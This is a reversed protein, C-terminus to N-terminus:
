VRSFETYLVLARGADRCLKQLMHLPYMAIDNLLLGAVAPFVTKGFVERRGSARTREDEDLGLKRSETRAVLHNSLPLLLNSVPFTLGAMHDIRWGHGALLSALRERTYRRCHGAIEDEIGWDRPSGPVLLMGRGGPALREKCRQMYLAERDDDLHELVMCSTILQASEVDQATAADLWDLQEVRYRGAAIAKANSARANSASLADIEYGTGRWGARLLVTSLFGSGVGIEHFYGPQWHSARDRLYMMQLLTGPPLIM